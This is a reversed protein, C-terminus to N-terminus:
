RVAGGCYECRGSADPITTAQCNPCVMSTKPKAATVADRRNKSHVQTLARKIENAAKEASLYEPSKQEEIQNANVKFKIESFWPSNISITVYIDYDTDYKPPNYSKMTGDSSKFKIETRSEDVSVLCGTVQDTSLIDPNANKYNQSSSVLWLGQNEDLHLKTGMGYTSTPSFSALTKKNEERYALHEKMEAVSFGKRGTLYPSALGFCNKCMNGDELKRNGLMGIKEGCFDCFKKDFLGM